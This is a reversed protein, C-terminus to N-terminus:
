KKSRGSPSDLVKYFKSSLQRWWDQGFGLHFPFFITEPMDFLGSFLRVINSSVYVM